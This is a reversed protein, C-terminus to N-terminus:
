SACMVSPASTSLMGIEAKTFAIYYYLIDTDVIAMM